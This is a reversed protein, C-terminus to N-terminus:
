WCTGAIAARQPKLCKFYDNPPYGTIFYKQALYKIISGNM